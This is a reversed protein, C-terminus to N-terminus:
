QCYYRTFSHLLESGGIDQGAYNIPARDTLTCQFQASIKDKSEAYDLAPKIEVLVKM